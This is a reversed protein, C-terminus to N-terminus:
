DTKDEKEERQGSSVTVNSARLLRDGILFGVTLVGLIHGKEIDVSPAEFYYSGNGTPTGSNIWYEEWTGTELKSPDIPPQILAM